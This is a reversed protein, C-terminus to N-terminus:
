RGIHELANRMPASSVKIAGAMPRNMEVILFLATAVALAGLFMITLVTANRPALLGFSTYLLTLWFLLIVVFPLPLPVYAQEIQLWRTLLIENGLALAQAQLAQQAGTQPKLGRMQQLLKEMAAAREFSMVGLETPSEEPWLMEIGATVMRRLTERVEKTEPGYNALLRDMLIVKAGVQTIAANTSDFTSKASSVLLGLVLAAMMTIMGAGMKVADKSDATLHHAPLLKSLALGILTGSFVCGATILAILTGSM